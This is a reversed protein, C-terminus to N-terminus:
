GAVNEAFRMLIAAVEARSAQGLPNLTTATNGTILDQANAWTMAAQAWASIQGADTYGGLSAGAATVEYGKYQAYRYLIAALQERTITDEPGFAGNGYGTVIGNASAWAVASAYWTGAPVDAFTSSGAAPEGELRYLMTVIMGRTTTAAPQFLTGGTGEMIGNEYVYAVADYYWASEAVDTFPLEAPEPEDPEEEVPTFAAKVSVKGAPMTFTYKGDGAETLTIAKGDKDTVTLSDLAYGEDPKVTITVKSGKGASKPSVTVTGNDADAVTVTYRTVGGGSSGGSSPKTSPKTTNEPKAGAEGSTQISIVFSNNNASTIKNRITEAASEDGSITDDATDVRTVTDHDAWVMIDDTGTVNELHIAPIDTVNEGMAYEINAYVGDGTPNLTSDKITVQSGNVLVGTWASDNITVNDLMGYAATYFQVGHKVKGDKVQIEVNKITVNDASVELVSGVPPINKGTGTLPKNTELTITHNGGNFTVGRATIKITDEVTVDGRLTITSNEKVAAVATDFDTYLTNDVQAIFDNVSLKGEEGLFTNFDSVLKEVSATYRIEASDEEIVVATLGEAQITANEIDSYIASGEELTNTGTLTFSPASSLASGTDLNVGGWANGSTSLNEASVTAGNVQVGVTGCNRITVDELKVNAGPGYAHIGSKTSAHGVITLNKITTITSATSNTSEVSLIHTATKGEEVSGWNEADATLTKKNGDLTVGVPVKYVAATDAASGRQVTIDAQLIVTDGAKAEALADALDTYSKATTQNVAVTSSEEGSGEIYLSGGEDEGTNTSDKSNTITSDGLVATNGSSENTVKGEITSDVITLGTKSQNAVNGSIEANQIRLSTNGGDSTSDDGATRNSVKLVDGEVKVDEIDVTISLQDYGMSANGMNKDSVVIAPTPADESEATNQIVADGSIRITLDGVYGGSAKGAVIAGETGGSGGSVLDADKSLAATGTITGGTVNLTGAAIRIGQAGTITGGEINVISMAPLYMATGDKGAGIVQADGSINITSGASKGSSANTCIAQAAEVKGSSMNLVVADYDPTETQNYQGNSGVGLGWLSIGWSAGVNPSNSEGNYTQCGVGVIEGGTITCTTVTDEGGAYKGAYNSVASVGKVTGGEINLTGYNIIASDGTGDTQTCEVTGDTLTFAAGPRVQITRDSASTLTGGTMTVSGSNLFIGYSDSTIKGAGEESSDAITVDGAVTAAIKSKGDSSNKLGLTHGSLDLTYNSGVPSIAVGAITGNSNGDKATYTVDRLLTVAGDTGAATIAETLDKFHQGAAEYYHQCGEGGSCSEGAALAATPLLALVMCLTLLASLIRKKM